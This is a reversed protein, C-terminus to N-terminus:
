RWKQTAEIWQKVRHEPNKNLTIDSIVSASDAGAELVGAVREVTIGGIGVLPISGIQKKWKTINKLGQPSHDLEKTTTPYVPGIAIYDPKVSLAVNLEDGDYTSIGLKLKAKRIAILDADALDEQGLHIYDCQEDIALQWYDNIILQCQYKTCVLKARQIHHRITADTENKMRLQVLKVGEPVLREIWDASDIILYFPDIKM